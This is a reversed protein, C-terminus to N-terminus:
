DAEFPLGALDEPRDVDRLIALHATTLGLQEATARTKKLVEATGWPIHNGFLEPRNKKLGILYYGGDRAPGLVLDHNELRRFAERILSNTLDPLDSGILVVQKWGRRFARRFAQEMRAGLDSGAQVVYELDRGLWDAMQERSGGSFHIEVALPLSKRVRHVLAIIKETLARHLRCAGEAGLASILRTKTVGPEPFRTFIIIGRPFPPDEFEDLYISFL